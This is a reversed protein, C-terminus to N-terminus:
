SENREHALVSYVVLDVYKGYLFEAEREIGEQKCGLREPIRRSKTNETACKIVIRHLDLEGFGYSILKRCSQTIIGRGESDKDIWYGISTNRHPWNISNFGIIGVIQQQHVIVCTVAGTTLSKDECTKLFAKQTEM